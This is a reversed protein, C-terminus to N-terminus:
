CPKKGDFLCLDTECEINILTLAHLNPYDVAFLFREMSLPELILWKAKMHIKPLIQTCFRNLMSDDLTNNVENSSHTTLTLHETFIPDSTINDLRNNVDRLSYLVEINTLNKLILLLIEDSLDTLQVCLRKM